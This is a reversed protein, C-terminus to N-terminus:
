RRPLPQWSIRVEGRGDEDLRVWPKRIRRQATGDPRMAWIAQAMRAGRTVERVFAIRRGDPSWVADTESVDPTSTLRRLGTGSARVVYVDGLYPFVRRLSTFVIREGDPSWDISMATRQSLRRLPKGTAASMLWTPGPEFGCCGGGSPRNPGVYAIRRGDPSMRALHATGTGLRREESGDLGASWVEWRSPPERVGRTYIVHRGDAAFAPDWRDFAPALSGTLVPDPVLPAPALPLDRRGSGDANMVAFRYYDPAALPWPEYGFVLRRGDASWSARDLRRGDACHRPTLMRLPRGDLELTAIQGAACHFGYSVSLVGNRGPFSAHAASAGVAAVALGTLLLLVLLWARSRREHLM